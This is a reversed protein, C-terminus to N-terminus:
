QVKRGLVSFYTGSRAFQQRRRAEAKAKAREDYVGIITKTQILIGSYVDSVRETTQALLYVKM